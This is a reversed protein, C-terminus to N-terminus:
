FRVLIAVVSFSKDNDKITKVKLTDAMVRSLEQMSPREDYEGVVEGGKYARWKKM